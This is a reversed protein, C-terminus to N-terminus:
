SKSLLKYREIELEWNGPDTEDLSMFIERVHYFKNRYPGCTIKEIIIENM